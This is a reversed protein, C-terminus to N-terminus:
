INRLYIYPFSLLVYDHVINFHILMFVEFSFVYVYM